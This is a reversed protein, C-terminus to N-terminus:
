GTTHAAYGVSLAGLVDAAALSGLATAGIGAASSNLGMCSATGSYANWPSVNCNVSQAQASTSLLGLVSAAAALAVRSGGRKGRARTTESAAVWAGLAENWISRYSKNM